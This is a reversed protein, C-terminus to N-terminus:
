EKKTFNKFYSGLGKIAKQVKNQDTPEETHKTKQPKVYGDGSSDINLPIKTVEKGTQAAIKLLNSRQTASVLQNLDFHIPDYNSTITGGWRMGLDTGIKVIGSDTWEKVSNNFAKGLKKGSKLTPNFDFGTGTNHHSTGPKAPKAHKKKYEKSGNSYADYLRQQEASSRYTSNLQIKVELDKWCKYIFAEIYPQLQIHSIAILPDNNSKNPVETDQKYLVSLESVDEPTDSDTPLFSSLFNSARDLYSDQPSPRSVRDDEFDGSEQLIKEIKYVGDLNVDSVLVIAGPIPASDFYNDKELFAEPHLYLAENKEQIDDIFDPDNLGLNHAVDEEIFRIKYFIPANSGFFNNLFRMVLLSTDGTENGSVIKARFNTKPSAYSDNELMDYFRNMTFDFSKRANNNYYSSLKLSRKNKRKSM